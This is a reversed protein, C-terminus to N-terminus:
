ARGRRVVSDTRGTFFGGEESPFAFRKCRSDKRLRLCIVPTCRSVMMRSPTSTLRRVPPCHVLMGLPISDANLKDKARNWGVFSVTMGVRFRSSRSTIPSGGLSNSSCNGARALRPLYTSFSNSPALSLWTRASSIRTSICRRVVGSVMALATSVSMLDRNPGSIPIPSFSNRAKVPM